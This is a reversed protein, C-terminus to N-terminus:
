IIDKNSVKNGTNAAEVAAFVMALTKLNDKGSTGAESGSQITDHFEQLLKRTGGFQPEEMAVPTLEDGIEAGYVIDDVAAIVGGECEIRWDCQNSTKAVDITSWTADYVIRLGSDFAFVVVASSDGEFRSWGTNWSTAWTSAPDRGLVFRILDFHHNAMDVLLPHEMTDRFSDRHFHHRFSVFVQGPQGYPADAVVRRLTYSVATHRRGQAVMISVGAKEAADVIARAETMTTALPKECLVHLGAEVAAICLPAHAEPSAVCIFGDAKTESLAKDISVYTPLEELGFEAQREAMRRTDVDVLGVLEFDESRQVTNIWGGGMHGVGAQLLRLKSKM